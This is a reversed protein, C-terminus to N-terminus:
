DGIKYCDTIEFDGVNTRASARFDLELDLFKKNIQYKAEEADSANISFEYSTKETEEICVIYKPM